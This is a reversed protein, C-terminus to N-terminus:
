IQRLKAVRQGLSHSQVSLASVAIWGPLWLAQLAHTAPLFGDALALALLVFLGVLASITRSKGRSVASLFIFAQYVGILYLFIVGGMGMEYVRIDLSSLPQAPILEMSRLVELGGSGYGVWQGALSSGIVGGSFALWAGSLCFAGLGVAIVPRGQSHSTAYSHALVYALAIMLVDAFDNLVSIYGAYDAEFSVGAFREMYERMEGALETYPLPTAHVFVMAGMWLGYAGALALWILIKDSFANSAKYCADRLVGRQRNAELAGALNRADQGEDELRGFFVLEGIRSLRVFGFGAWLLLLLGKAAGHGPFAALLVASIVILGLFVVLRNM